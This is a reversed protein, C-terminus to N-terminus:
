PDRGTLDKFMSKHFHPNATIYVIDSLEGESFNDKIFDKTSSGASIRSETEGNVEEYLDQRCADLVILNDWDRDFISEPSEEIDEVKNLAKKHLFSALRTAGRLNKVKPYM